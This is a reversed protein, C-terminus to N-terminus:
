LACVVGTLLMWHLVKRGSTKMDQAESNTMLIQLLVYRYWTDRVAAM